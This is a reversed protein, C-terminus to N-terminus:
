PMKGYCQEFPFFGRQISSKYTYYLYSEQTCNKSGVRGHGSAVDVRVTINDHLPALRGCEEVGGRCAAAKEGRQTQM